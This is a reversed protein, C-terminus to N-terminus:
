DNQAAIHLLSLGDFSKVQTIDISSATLVQKLQFPDGIEVCNILKDCFKDLDPNLIEAFDSASEESM